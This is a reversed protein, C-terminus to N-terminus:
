SLDAQGGGDDEWIRLDFWDPCFRNIIQPQLATPHRRRERPPVVTSRHEGSDTILNDEDKM